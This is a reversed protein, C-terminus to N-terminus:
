SIYIFEQMNYTHSAAGTPEDPRADLAGLLAPTQGLNPLWFSAEATGQNPWKDPPTENSMARQARKLYTILSIKMCMKRENKQTFLRRKSSVSLKFYTKWNGYVRTCIVRTSLSRCRNPQGPFIRPTIYPSTSHVRLM